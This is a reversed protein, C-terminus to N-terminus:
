NLWRCLSEGGAEESKEKGKREKGNGQNRDINNLGKDQVMWDIIM